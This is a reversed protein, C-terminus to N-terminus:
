LFAEPKFRQAPPSAANAFHTPVTLCAFHGETLESKLGPADPPGALNLDHAFNGALTVILTNFFRAEPWSGANHPEQLHECIKSYAASELVGCV